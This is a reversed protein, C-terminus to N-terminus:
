SEARVFGTLKSGMPIVLEGCTTRIDKPVYFYVCDGEQVCESLFKCEFAAKIVNGKYLIYYNGTNLDIYIISDFFSGLAYTINYAMSDENMLTKKQLEEESYKKEEHISYNVDDVTKM